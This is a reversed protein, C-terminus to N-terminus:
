VFDSWPGRSLKKALVVDRFVFETAWQDTGWTITKRSTPSPVFFHFVIEAVRRALLGTQFWPSGGKLIRSLVHPCAM